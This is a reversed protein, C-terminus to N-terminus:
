CREVLARLASTVAAPREIMLMHGAGPVLTLRADALADRLAEGYKPPTMRDEAGVVLEVPCRLEALRARVDFGDCALFDGHYVAPDCLAYSQEAKARLAPPASAAYSLAVITRITGPLDRAFGALIDPAVRMRAGAGVLGLRSVRDPRELALWLAIAGGMSHGALAVRDLGCADMFQLVAAGYAPISARGPLASRGHGPLDLTFVRASGALDRLQYGWHQHTGGAGHLCLLPTGSAGRQAYFLPGAATTVMPM